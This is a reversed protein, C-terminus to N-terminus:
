PKEAEAGTFLKARHRVFVWKPGDIEGDLWCQFVHERSKGLPMGSRVFPQNMRTRMFHHVSRGENFISIYEGRGDIIRTIYM